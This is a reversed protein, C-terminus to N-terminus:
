QVSSIDLLSLRLTNARKRLYFLGSVSSILLDSSFPLEACCLSTQSEQPGFCYICAQVKTGILGTIPGRDAVTASTRWVTYYTLLSPLWLSLDSAKMLRVGCGCHYCLWVSNLDSPSVNWYSRYSIGVNVNPVWVELEPGSSWGQSPVTVDIMSCSNSAAASYRNHLLFTPSWHTGALTRPTNLSYSLM